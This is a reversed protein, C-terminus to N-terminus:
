SSIWPKPDKEGDQIRELHNNKLKTGHSEDGDICGNKPFYTQFKKWADFRGLHFGHINEPPFGIEITRLSWGDLQGAKLTTDEAFIEDM